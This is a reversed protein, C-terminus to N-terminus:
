TWRLGTLPRREPQPVPGDVPMPRGIATITALEWGSGVAFAVELAERDFARFQRAFLGMAQAQVTLHAVAQGLDYMSFESYELPSDEVWRHCLNLLLLSATPAWAGSSRALSPVIRDHAADGRRATVFAWPQSNGASPAWRAAELLLDVEAPTVEHDPDFARPSWRQRLLPYIDDAPGPATM